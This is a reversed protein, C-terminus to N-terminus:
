VYVYLGLEEFSAIDCDINLVENCAVLNGECGCCWVGVFVSEGSCDRQILMVQRDRGENFFSFQWMKGVKPDLVLGGAYAAKKKGIKSKNQDEFDEDEDVQMQCKFFDNDLRYSKQLTLLTIKPLDLVFKPALASNRKFYM